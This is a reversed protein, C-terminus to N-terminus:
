AHQTEKRREIRYYGPQAQQAAKRAMHFVVSIYATILVVYLLLYVVLTSAIAKAPVTSAAEAATMVGYVLWPQRGIETVYWGAILGVWGIFTMAVLGKALWPRPQGQRRLQWVGTWSAALMLLGVGVMIRFAFFVPAVPPHKDGFSDIGKVEGDWSHTLYFSALKPVAIEFKNSQTAADPIGFLVASAGRETNWIGEMAAIKAPQHHLTNVGHLDGVVIQVPILFAAITLGTRLGAMVELGRDNKLWRFASIGALLFAVTLGSALMMHTFRYPFSPNFIVELWSTVHAKGDVMVFGAPTHMWSNLALIWFASLTTGAAM